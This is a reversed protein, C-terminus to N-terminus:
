SVARPDPDHQQVAGTLHKDGSTHIHRCHRSPLHRLAPDVRALCRQLGRQALEPLFDAGVLRFEEALALAPELVVQWGFEGASYPAPAIAALPLFPEGHATGPIVRIDVKGGLM